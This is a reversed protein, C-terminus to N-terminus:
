LKDRFYDRIYLLAMWLGLMGTILWGALGIVSVNGLIYPPIRAFIILSSGIILAAMIISTGLRSAASLLGKKLPEISKKEFVLDIKGSKIKNMIDTLDAPLDRLLVGLDSTTFMIEGLWNSPKFRNKFFQRAFPRTFEILNFDPDLSKGIGEVTLLAKILLYLNPPVSLHNLTIIDFSQHILEQIHIDQLSVNYYQEVLDAIEQELHEFHEESGKTLRLIIRTARTYNKRVIASVLDALMDKQYSPLTGMMGFDLFCIVEDELVLINGAHPDAHFFGYEFIQSLILAAGRRAVKKVNITDKSRDQILSLRTGHIYEMVLVKQSCFPQYVLPIRIRSDTKYLNQFRIINRMEHIFDMEQHIVWEFHDLVAGLHLLAIDTFAKEILTIIHHLIVIDSSIIHEINPRRIKVAVTEGSRLVAKHVQAISASADAEANFSSFVQDLPVGLENKVIQLADQGPFPPVKDQLHELERILEPPLIDPRNSLIQGFKIFTPGLEEIALRVRHWRSLHPDVQPTRAAKLKKWSLVRNLGTIDVFEGFGYRVLISIIQRYRHLHKRWSSNSHNM